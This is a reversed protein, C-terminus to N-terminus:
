YRRSVDARYNYGCLKVFAYPRSFLSAEDSGPVLLSADITNM